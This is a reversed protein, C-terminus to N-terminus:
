CVNRIIASLKESEEATDHPCPLSSLLVGCVTLKQPVTLHWDLALRHRKFDTNFARSAGPGSDATGRADRYRARRTLVDELEREMVVM